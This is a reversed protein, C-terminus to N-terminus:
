NLEAKPFLYTVSVGDIPALVRATGQFDFETMTPAYLELALGTVLEPRKGVTEYRIVSLRGLQGILKGSRIQFKGLEADASQVLMNPSRAFFVDGAFPNQDNLEELFEHLAVSEDDSIDSGLQINNELLYGDVM